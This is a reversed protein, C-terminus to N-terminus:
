RVNYFKMKYDTSVKGAKIADLKRQVLRKKLPKLRETFLIGEL